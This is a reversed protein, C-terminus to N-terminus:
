FTRMTITPDPTTTLVLSVDMFRHCLSCQFIHHGRVAKLEDPLNHQPCPILSHCAQCNACVIEELNKYVNDVFRQFMDCYSREEEDTYPPGLDYKESM